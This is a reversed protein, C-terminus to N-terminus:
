YHIIYIVLVTNLANVIIYPSIRIFNAIVQPLPGISNAQGTVPSYSYYFQAYKKYIGIKQM